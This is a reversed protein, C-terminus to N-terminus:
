ILALFVRRLKQLYDEDTVHKSYIRAMEIVSNETCVSVLGADFSFGNWNNYVKLVLQKFDELEIRKPIQIYGHKDVKDDLWIGEKIANLYFYKSIRTTCVSGHKKSKKTFKVGFNTLTNQIQPIQALDTFGRLRIAFINNRQIRLQAHDMDISSDLTTGAQLIVRHLDIFNHHSDIPLYLYTVNNHKGPYDDYYGKFPSISEYVLTETGGQINIPMLNETKELTGCYITKNNNM